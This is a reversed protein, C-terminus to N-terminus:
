PYIVNFEPKEEAGYYKDAGRPINQVPEGEPADGTQNNASSDLPHDYILANLRSIESCIGLVSEDNVCNDVYLNYCVYGTNMAAQELKKNYKEIIDTDGQQKNIMEIKDISDKIDSLSNIIVDPLNSNDIAMNYCLYGLEAIKKSRDSEYMRKFNEM